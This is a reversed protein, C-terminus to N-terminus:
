LGLMSSNLYVLTPNNKRLWTLGCTKNEAFWKFAVVPGFHYLAWVYKLWLGKVTCILLWPGNIKKKKVDLYRHAAHAGIQLRHLPLSPSRAYNGLVYGFRWTLVSWPKRRSPIWPFPRAQRDRRRWVKLLVRTGQAKNPQSHVNYLKKLLWRFWGFGGPGHKCLSLQCSRM